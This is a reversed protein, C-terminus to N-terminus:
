SRRYRVIRYRIGTRSSHWGEVPDSSERRWQAGLVPAFADGEVELDLETVVAVTAIGVTKAYVEAGGIIWVEGSGAALATGIATDLDRAAVAGDAQWSADGTLVINTRGPLPRWADPLSDWTRRGMIVPHGTTVAKFHASDEPVRWPIGNRQGIVGGSAQAWIMGVTGTGGSLHEQSV